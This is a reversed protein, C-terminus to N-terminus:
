DTKGHLGGNPAFRCPRKVIFTDGIKKGQAFERDLNRSIEFTGKLTELMMPGYFKNFQDRLDRKRQAEEPNQIEWRREIEACMERYRNQSADDVWATDSDWGDETSVTETCCDYLEESLDSLEQDSLFQVDSQYANIM